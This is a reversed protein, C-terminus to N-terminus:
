RAWIGTATQSIIKKYQFFMVFGAFITLFIDPLVFSILGLGFKYFLFVMPIFLLAKVALVYVQLHIIGVGNLFLSYKNFYTHLTSSFALFLILLFPPIVQGGVWLEFFYPKIIVLLIVFALTILWYKNIQNMTERIWGFEKKTYAETFATLFPTLVMMYLMTGITMYKVSLQYVTVEEPGFFQAVLIVASQTYVMFLIQNLFFRFGLSIMPLSEKIKLYSLGPRLYKLSGAFLFIGAVLFVVPTKGAYVMCMKFLSGETTKVLVFMAALGSLQTIINIVYTVAYRQQAQLINTIVKGIFGICFFFFVILVTDLLYENPLADTNLVKNWSIFQAAVFFVLFLLGAIATIIAFTSTVYVRAKKLDELALAEALKNRLGNGLGVDFFSFWHVISSIVLWIGYEVKGVYNLTLPVIIFSVLMGVGKSVFSVAINKKARLTRPNGKLFFSNFLKVPSNRGV